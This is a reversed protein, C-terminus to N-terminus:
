SESRRLRHVLYGGVCVVLITAFVPSATILSYVVFVVSAIILAWGLGDNYEWWDRFAKLRSRMHQVATTM